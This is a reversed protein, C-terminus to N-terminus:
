GVEQTCLLKPPARFIQKIFIVIVSVNDDFLNYFIFNNHFGQFCFLNATINLLANRILFFFYKTLDDLFEM